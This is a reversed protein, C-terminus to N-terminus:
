IIDLLFNYVRSFVYGGVLGSIFGLGGCIIASLFSPNYSFYITGILMVIPVGAFFLYALMAAGGIAMSSLVGLTLGFAIPNMKSIVM